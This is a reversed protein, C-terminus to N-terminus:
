CVERDPWSRGRGNPRPTSGSSGLRIRRHLVSAARGGGLEITVGGREGIAAELLAELREASPAPDGVALRLVRRGLAPAPPDRWDIEGDPQTRRALEAGAIADLLADEEAALSAFRGIREVAGLRLSELLPLLEGRVRNRLFGPDENSPDDRYALGAEDLLTRLTERREALLPRAVNGRRAPIGTVGALGSGRLLNLLVTEALDDLTHATMVLAGDRSLEALFRYRAERGADEISRGEDRALAAVDTRRVTVPLRLAAAAEAVFAADDASDPRLGHDLHAVSLRWRTADAELLQAAGHLMAMSDAGGSVALLLNADDSIRLSRAGAHLRAALGQLPTTASPPNSGGAM